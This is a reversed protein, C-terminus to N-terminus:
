TRAIQDESTYNKIALDSRLAEKDARREAENKREAADAEEDYRYAQGSGSKGGSAQKGKAQSQPVARGKKGGTDTM